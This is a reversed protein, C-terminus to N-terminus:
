LHRALGGRGPSQASAPPSRRRPAACARQRRRASQTPDRPEQPRTPRPDPLQGRTLVPLGVSSSAEAGPRVVRRDPRCGSATRTSTRRVSGAILSRSDRLFDLRFAQRQARFFSRRRSRSGCAPRGKCLSSCPHRLSVTPARSQLITQRTVKSSAPDTITSTASTHATPARLSSSTYLSIDARTAARGSLGRVCARRSIAALNSNSMWSLSSAGGALSTGSHSTLSRVVPAPKDTSVTASIVQFSAM